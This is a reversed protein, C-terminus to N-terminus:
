QHREFLPFILSSEVFSQIFKSLGKPFQSADILFERRRCNNKGKCEWLIIINEFFSQNLGGHPTRSQDTWKRERKLRKQGIAQYM